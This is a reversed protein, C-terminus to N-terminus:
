LYAPSPVFPGSDNMRLLNFDNSVVRRILWASLPELSDAMSDLQDAVLFQAADTERMDPTPVGDIHSCLFLIGVMGLWPEPLEQM